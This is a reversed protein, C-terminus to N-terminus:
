RATLSLIAANPRSNNSTKPTLVVVPCGDFLRPRLVVTFRTANAAEGEVEVPVPVVVRDADHVAGVDIVDLEIEVLVALDVPPVEVLTAWGKFVDAEGPTVVSHHIGAREIARRPVQKADLYRGPAIAPEVADLKARIQSDGPIERMGFLTQCNSRGQGTELHRQHALFSPSQMFFPAFGALAFDAM